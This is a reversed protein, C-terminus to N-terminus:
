PQVRLPVRIEPTHDTNTRIVIEKGNLEPSATINDIQVRQGHDGFPFVGTTMAPDPTEIGTIEFRTDSGSRLIIYRTLPTESAKASLTIEPPAFVISGKVEAFVPISIVPRAPNDTNVRVVANVNGPAAPAALTISLRYKRNEDLTEQEVTIGEHGPDISQISFSTEPLGELEVELISEQGASVQGFMLREPQVKIAALAEGMLRLQYQPNEPDNSDITVVKSQHGTRGQLNLKATVQSEEEPKLVKSSINAVTCGCSARVNSIELTTDGTNKIVFTHEVSGQNDAKGFNFEREECFIRPGKATEGPAAPLGALIFAGIVMLQKM